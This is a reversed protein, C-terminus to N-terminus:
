NLYHLIDDLCNRSFNFHELQWQSRPPHLVCLYLGLVIFICSNISLGVCIMFLRQGKPGNEINAVLLGFSSKVIGAMFITVVADHQLM